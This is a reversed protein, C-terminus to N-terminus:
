ANDECERNECGEEIETLFHDSDSNRCEIGDWYICGACAPIYDNM